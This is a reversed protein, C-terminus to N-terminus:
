GRLHHLVDRYVSARPGVTIIRIEVADFQYVIRFGFVRYTWFGKLENVLPKGAHPNTAIVDFGKRIRSKTQPALVRILRIVHAAINLRRPTM